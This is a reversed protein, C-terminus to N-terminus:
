VETLPKLEIITTAPRIRGDVKLPVRRNGTEKTGAVLGPM